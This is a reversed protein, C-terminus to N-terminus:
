NLANKVLITRVGSNETVLIFNNTPSFGQFMVLMDPSNDWPQLFQPHAAQRRFLVEDVRHESVLPWAPPRKTGRCEGYKVM